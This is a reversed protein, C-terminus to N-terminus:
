NWGRLAAERRDLEMGVTRLAPFIAYALAEHLPELDNAGM